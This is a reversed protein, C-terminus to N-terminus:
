GWIRNLASVIGVSISPAHDPNPDLTRGVAAAWQGIRIESEPVFAPVVLDPTDIKLLTLMRSHDTAIVKAVLRDKRGPIGVTISTPKNAFNFASTIIYGDAGVVVGTTPGTGKRIGNDVPGVRESGGTTEILVVSPAVKAVAAQIAQEYASDIDPSQAPVLALAM